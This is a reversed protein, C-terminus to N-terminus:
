LNAISVNENEYKVTFQKGENEIVAVFPSCQIPQNLPYQGAKKLYNPLLFLGHQDGNTGFGEFDGKWFRTGLETELQHNTKKIDTTPMGIENVCLMENLDFVRNSENKLDHRAIFEVINGNGDFFYVADANWSDFHHIITENVDETIRLRTKLWDVANKLQNCPILFCYHYFYNLTSNQFILKTSGVQVSFSNKTTENIEYGLTNQYFEKQAKHQHSFLILEKIHM